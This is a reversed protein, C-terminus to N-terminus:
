FHNLLLFAFHFSTKKNPNMQLYHMFCLSLQALDNFSIIIFFINMILIRYKQALFKVILIKVVIPYLLILILLLLYCGTSAFFYSINEHNINKRWNTFHTFSATKRFDFHHFFHPMLFLCFSLSLMKLTSFIIKKPFFLKLFIFFALFNLISSMRIQNFVFNFSNSHFYKLDQYQITLLHKELIIFSVLGKAKPNNKFHIKSQKM